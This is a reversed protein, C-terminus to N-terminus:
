TRNFALSLELDSGATALPGSASSIQGLIRPKAVTSSGVMDSTQVLYKSNSKIALLRPLKLSTSSAYILALLALPSSCALLCTSPMSSPPNCSCAGFVIKLLRGNSILYLYVLHADPVPETQFDQSHKLIWYIQAKKVLLPLVWRWLVGFSFM